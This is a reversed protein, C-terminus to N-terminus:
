ALAQPYDFAPDKEMALEDYCGTFLISWAWEWMIAASKADMPNPADKVVLTDLWAQYLSRPHRHIADRHVYFMACLRVVFDHPCTQMPYPHFLDTVWEKWNRWSSYSTCDHQGNVVFRNVLDKNNINQYVRTFSLGNVLDHMRGPHHHSTEHAHVFVTFESLTDYHEVIYRLYSAAEYGRNISEYTHALKMTKSSVHINPYKNRDVRLLWVLSENYHAVVLTAM